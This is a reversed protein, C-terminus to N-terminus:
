FLVAPAVLLAPSAVRGSSRPESGSKLPTRTVRDETKHTHKIYRQKDKQVNEFPYNSDTYLIVSM